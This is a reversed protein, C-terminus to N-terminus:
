LGAGTNPSWGAGCLTKQVTLVKQRGTTNITGVTFTAIPGLQSAAWYFTQSTQCFRADQLRQTQTEEVNIENEADTLSHDTSLSARVLTDHLSPM